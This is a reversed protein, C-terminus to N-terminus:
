SERRATMIWNTEFTEGKDPSFAQSWVVVDPETADYIARVFIPADDFIDNSFFTGVKGEFSGIVPVDLVVSNSDAWNIAWLKTRPNFLRLIFGEDFPMAYKEFRYQNVNGFGNLIKHTECISEFEFWEDSNKLRTKLAKNHITWKGVHFDFDIQSSNKSAVIHSDDASESLNQKMILQTEAASNNQYFKNEAKNVYLLNGYNFSIPILVLAM